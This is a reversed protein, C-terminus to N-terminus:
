SFLSSYLGFLSVALSICINLFAVDITCRVTGRALWM